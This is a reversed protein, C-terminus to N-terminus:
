GPGAVALVQPSVFVESSTQYLCAFRNNAMRSCAMPRESASSECKVRLALPEERINGKFVTVQEVEEM